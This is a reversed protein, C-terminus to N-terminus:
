NTQRLGINSKPFIQDAKPLLQPWGSKPWLASPDIFRGQGGSTPWYIQLWVVCYDRRKSQIMEVKSRNINLTIHSPYAAFSAQKGGFGM